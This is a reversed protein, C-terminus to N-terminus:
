VSRVELRAAASVPCQALVFNSSADSGERSNARADRARTGAGTAARRRALTPVLPNVLEQQDPRHAQLAFIPMWRGTGSFPTVVDCAIGGAALGDHLSRTHTQVGTDGILPNITAIFLRPACSSAPAAPVQARVTNPTVPAAALRLTAITSPSQSM